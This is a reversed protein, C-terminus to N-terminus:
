IQLVHETVHLACCLEETKFMTNILRRLASLPVCSDTQAASLMVVAAVTCDRETCRDITHLFSMESLTHM